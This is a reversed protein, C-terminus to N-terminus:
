IIVLLWNKFGKGSSEFLTKFASYARASQLPTIVKGARKPTPEQKSQPERKFFNRRTYLLSKGGNEIRSSVCKWYSPPICIKSFLIWKLFEFFANKLRKQPTKSTKKHNKLRKQIFNCKKEIRKRSRSRPHAGHAARGCGTRPEPHSNTGQWIESPKWRGCSSVSKLARGHM